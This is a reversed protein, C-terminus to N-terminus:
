FEIIKHLLGPLDSIFVFCITVKAAKIKEM